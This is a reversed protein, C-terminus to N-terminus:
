HLELDGLLLQLYTASIGSTASNGLFPGEWPSRIITVARYRLPSQGGPIREDHWVVGLAGGAGGRGSTSTTASRGRPSSPPSRRASTSTPRSAVRRSYRWWGLRARHRDQVPRPACQAAQPRILRAPAVVIEGGVDYTLEGRLVFNCEDERTHTHPPIMMGPSTGVGGGHAFRGLPRRHGQPSHGLRPPPAGEGPATFIKMEDEQAALSLVRRRAMDVFTAYGQPAAWRMGWVRSRQGTRESLELRGRLQTLILAVRLAFKTSCTKWKMPHVILRFSCFYVLPAGTNM